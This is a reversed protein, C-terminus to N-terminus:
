PVHRKLEQIWNEVISIEAPRLEDESPRVMLFRSADRNVDYAPLDTSYYRGRFLEVSREAAFESGATHVRATMLRDGSRYFLEDGRPSWIPQEGGASSVQYKPGGALPEVFVEFHGSENSAYSIWRGDPSTRVSWQDGPRQVIPTLTRTGDLHLAWIDASNAVSTHVVFVFTRGDPTWAGPALGSGTKLAPDAPEIVVEPARSGDAPQWFLWGGLSPAAAAIPAGRFLIRNGDPSWWPSNSRGTNTFRTFAGNDLHYIWIDGNAGQLIEVAIKRGDPSVRPRGYGRLDPMVPTVAGSRDVWVLSRADSRPMPVFAISGDRSIDYQSPFVGEEVLTPVGSVKLAAADLAVAYLADNRSFVLHGSSTDLARGNGEVLKQQEGTRLSRIMVAPANPAAPQRTTFLVADGNRTFSPDGHGGGERPDPTTFAVPTGGDASVRMLGARATLPLAFVITNDLGWAGGVGGTEDVVDTVTSIPGGASPIKRLKNRAFFAIWEGDPSWFPAAAGETGDLPRANTQDFSRVYIRTAGQTVGIYALRTGDPALAVSRNGSLTLWDATNLGAQLAGSSLRRVRAAPNAASDSPRRLAWGVATGVLTAGVLAPVVWRAPRGRTAPAPEGDSLSEDLILRVDGVDRQRRKPDKALCCQVLRRLSAPTGRPLASWDPQRELVAAITDSLTDGGFAPRGSLMEYLVCGFAWVDTRKDVARGRVQEPSMYPTTGLLVGQATAGPATPSQSVAGAGLPSEKALGFDLVKAVGDRAIVVNAPKLDRHIIGREHAADLADAIERAIRASEAVPLARGRAIKDALTEGEVLELVLARAGGAGEELGYIAAIHPHNLSALVRAEREFRELREADFTFAAPLIKLAVDRNLRRDRARYVEGMGGRGLLSVVEYAGVREGVALAM